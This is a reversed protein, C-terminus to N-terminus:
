TRILLSAPERTRIASVNIHVDFEANAPVSPLMSSNTVEIFATANVEYKGWPYNDLGAQTLGLIAFIALVFSVLHLMGEVRLDARRNQDLPGFANIRAFIKNM